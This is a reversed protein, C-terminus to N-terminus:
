KVSTHYILLGAMPNREIRGMIFGAAAAAQSLIESYHYAVSGIFDCPMGEHAQPYLSINRRFFAVFADFVMTRMEPRDILSAIFPSLSALFRNADPKRYVNNIIDLRDLGTQEYFSECIDIPLQRKLVNGVLLKGLVAGSGEDGLIYGLPSVNDIIQKGDYVCSNSGTGLICAIGPRVGCLSRAAALLDSHVEVVASSGFVDRLASAVEGCVQASVCGAGYFYIADLQVDTPLEPLVEAAFRERMTHPPTLLANLGPTTFDHTRDFGTLLWTIKSSGCDAILM